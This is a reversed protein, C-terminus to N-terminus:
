AAPALARYFAALGSQELANRLTEKEKETIARQPSRSVCPKTLVGLM